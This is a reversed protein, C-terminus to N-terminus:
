GAMLSALEAALTDRQQRQQVIYESLSVGTPRPWTPPDAQAKVIRDNIEMIRMSKETCAAAKVPAYPVGLFYVLLTAQENM